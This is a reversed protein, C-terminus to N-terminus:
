FVPSKWLVPWGHEHMKQDASVLACNKIMAQAMLIRDWPDRNEWPLRAANLMTVANLLLENAGNELVLPYWEEPPQITWKGLQRKQEIEYFSVPSVFVKVDPHEFAEHVARPLRNSDFMAWVLAHTDLLLQRTEDIAMM